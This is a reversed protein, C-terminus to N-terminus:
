EVYIGKTNIVEYDYEPHLDKRVYAITEALKEDKYVAVIHDFEVENFAVVAYLKTEGTYENM